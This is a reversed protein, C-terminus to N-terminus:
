STVCRSMIGNRGLKTTNCYVHNPNDQDVFGDPQSVYVEERLIGNIFTTQVDMQYVIMNMHAAYAIFIRIAELRTVPAFSEEFDIEKEQCSISSTSARVTNTPIVDRSSSKKSNPEPIPVGFFPDNDLHEVGIDHFEEEMGLSIVLSQSEPHTQSNKSITCVLGSSTTRPTLLKLEPGSGFQKSDMTTLEDFDITEIILRNRKNYIRYAKKAPAYGVFIGIDAKPKLKGLDESKSNSIKNNKNRADNLTEDIFTVEADADDIRGQKSADEGLSEEKDSSHNKFKQLEYMRVLYTISCKVYSSCM